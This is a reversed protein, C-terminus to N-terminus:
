FTPKLDIFGVWQTSEVGAATVVRLQDRYRGPALQASQDKTITIEIEGLPANTVAIGNGVNLTLVVEPAEDGNGCAEIAPATQLKWEVLQAGSLDLIAGVADTCAGEIPFTEGVYFSWLPHIATM